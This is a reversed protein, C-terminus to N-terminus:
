DKNFLAALKAQTAPDIRSSIDSSVPKASSYSATDIKTAGDAVRQRFRKLDRGAVSRAHDWDQPSITTPHEICDIADLIDEKLAALTPKEDRDKGLIDLAFFYAFSGRDSDVHMIANRTAHLYKFWVVILRLEGERKPNVRIYENASKYDKAKHVNIGNKDISCNMCADVVEVRQDEEALQSFAETTEFFGMELLCSSIRERFICLAQQIMQHEVCWKIVSLILGSDDSSEPIFRKRLSPILSHLLLESRIITYDWRAEELTKRLQDDETADIAIPLNAERIANLAEDLTQECTWGDPDDIATLAASVLVYNKSKEALALEVHNIAEQIAKARMDIDDVQCLALANSFVEMKDCLGRTEESVFKKSRFFSCLLDARGYRTFSDIANILDILDFTTNQRVITRNDYSSYVVSGTTNDDSQMKLLQVALTQLIVADRKGGTIDISVEYQGDLYENLSPISDAPRDPNYPLPNFAPIPIGAEKCFDAIREVFFIEASIRDDDYCEFLSLHKIASAPISKGYCQNSCLYIIQDIDKDNDHAEQLLCKVPAENAQIGHFTKKLDPSYYPEEKPLVLSGDSNQKPFIRNLVCLIINEKM